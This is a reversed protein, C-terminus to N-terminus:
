AIQAAIRRGIWRVCPVAWSNGLAKYRPGDPCQDAPKGRWPIATYSDPFGMLRECEVPTLRRVQMATMVAQPQGGGSPSQKTLTLAQEANFKPTQETTFAVAQMVRPGTADPIGNRASITAALDGTIVGNYTDVGVPQAAFLSGNDASANGNWKTGYASTLCDATDRFTVPQMILDGGQNGHQPGAAMLPQLVDVQRAKYDRGSNQPMISWATAQVVAPVLHANGGPSDGRSCLTQTTDGTVTQNYTDFAIPQVVAVDTGADSRDRPWHTITPAAEVPSWGEPDTESMPKHTKAFSLVPTQGEDLTTNIGKHMRATLTNGVAYPQVVQLSEVTDVDTGPPRDGGTRNGGARLTPCIAAGERTKGRAPPNRQMGEVVPLISEAIAWARPHRLSVSVVFVRRRRQAVGFFQADLVRWAALREPGVVVGAAKWKGRPAVAPQDDGALGALFCGFANDATSLVGPVNEWFVVAPLEGRALRVADIANAIECFTLSLNGRADDLSRRLGAVSFAQCPTGGCFLDPAEVKGSRILQPLGTMDGHNPVEPYHHALVACPFPEIESFWAARWGLPHWAVSAAEIGSCVSGFRM